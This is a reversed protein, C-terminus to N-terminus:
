IKNHRIIKCANGRNLKVLIYLWLVHTYSRKNNSSDGLSILIYEMFTYSCFLM